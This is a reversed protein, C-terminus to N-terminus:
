SNLSDTLWKWCREKPIPLQMKKLEKRRVDLQQNKKRAQFVLDTKCLSSDFYLMKVCFVQLLKLCSQFVNRKLALCPLLFTVLVMIKKPNKKQDYSFFATIHCLKNWQNSHIHNFIAALCIEKM